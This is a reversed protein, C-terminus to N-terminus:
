MIRQHESLHATNFYLSIPKRRCGLGARTEANIMDDMAPELPADIRRKKSHSGLISNGQNYRERRAEDSEPQDTNVENADDDDDSSDIEMDERASPNGIVPRGSQGVSASAVASTQSRKRKKAERRQAVKEREEDYHKAEVLLIAVAEKDPARAGRGFRQWLTCM